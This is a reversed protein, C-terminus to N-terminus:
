VDRALTERVRQEIRQRDRMGLIGDAMDRLDALAVSRIMRKIRPYAGVSVSLRTFGIGLLVAASHPDTALEGVVIMPKGTPEVLTHVQKLVRLVAPHFPNYGKLSSLDTRDVALLFQILDNTGLCLYDVEAAMLDCTVAAAPTEIMVGMPVSGDFAIGQQTLRGRVDAIIGRAETLEDLTSVFPLLIRASGHVSARYIARLQKRFMSRNELLFRLGRAGSARGGDLGKNIGADVARINVPMNGARSLVYSYDEVLRDESGARGNRYFDFETRYLGIAESENAVASDIEEKTNINSGLLISIRDKTVSPARTPRNLRRRTKADERVRVRYTEITKESPARIVVGEDGDVILLEGSMLGPLVDRVGMVAPLSMSRAIIATHSLPGGTETVMGVLRPSKLELLTSPLITPGALISNYRLSGIALPNYSGLNALLRRVVDELDGRRDRLYDDHVRDYAELVNSTVAQIAWEANIKEERIKQTIRDVFLPDELILLHADILTTSDGAVSSELKDQMKTLQQRSKEISQRLSDLQDDVETEALTYNLTVLEPDWSTLAHGFAVGPSAAIGSLKREVVTM